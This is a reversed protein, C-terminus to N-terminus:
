ANTTEGEWLSTDAEWVEKDLAEQKDKCNPCVDVENEDSDDCFEWITEECTKCYHHDLNFMKYEGCTNFEGEFEDVREGGEYFIHGWYAYSEEYFKWEFSLKKGEKALTDMIPEAPSWATRFEIFVEGNEWQDITDYDISAEWKTGWNNIRWAYWEGNNNFEQPMPIINNFAFKSPDYDIALGESKTREVKKLLKNLEKPEGTITLTNYCWNPM